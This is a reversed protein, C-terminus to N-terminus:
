AMPGGEGEEFLVTYRLGKGGPSQGSVCMGCGTAVRQLDDRESADRGWSASGRSGHQGGRRGTGQGGINDSNEVARRHTESNEKM